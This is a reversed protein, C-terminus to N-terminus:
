AAQHDEEIDISNAPLGHAFKVRVCTNDPLMAIQNAVAVHQRCLVFNSLCAEARPGNEGGDVRVTRTVHHPRSLDPQGCRTVFTVSGFGIHQGREILWRAPEPLEHM